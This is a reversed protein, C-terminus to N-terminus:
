LFQGIEGTETVQALWYGPSNGSTDITASEAIRFAKGFVSFSIPVRELKAIELTYIVPKTGEPTITWVDVAAMAQYVGGEKYEEVILWGSHPTPTPNNKFKEEGTYVCIVKCNAEPMTPRFLINAMFNVHDSPPRPTRVLYTVLAGLGIGAIGAGIEKKM